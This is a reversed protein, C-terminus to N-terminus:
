TSLRQVRTIADEDVLLVYDGHDNLRKAAEDSLWELDNSPRDAYGLDLAYSEFRQYNEILQEAQPIAEIYFPDERLVQWTHLFKRETRFLRKTAKENWFDKRAEKIVTEWFEREGTLWSQIQIHRDLYGEGVSKHFYLAPQDGVMKQVLEEVYPKLETVNKNLSHLAAKTDGFELNCRAAMINITYVAAIMKGATHLRNKQVAERLEALLWEEAQVLQFSVTPLMAKKAEYDEQEVLAEAYKLAANLSVNANQHLFKDLRDYIDAIEKKLARIRSTLHHITYATIAIDLMPGAVTVAGAVVAITRANMGAVQLLSPLLTSVPATARSMNGGGRLWAVIKKSESFRIVGGVRELTGNLLGKEIADPIEFEVRVKM